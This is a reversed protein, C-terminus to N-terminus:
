DFTYRGFHQDFDEALSVITFVNMSREYELVAPTLRIFSPRLALSYAGVNEFVVYDGLHIADTFDRYLVDDEMCTCGVIDVPRAEGPSGCVPGHIVQLPLNKPSKSPIIDYVSGSVVAQRKDRLQHVGRVKVIYRFADAVLALGPELVLTPRTLNSYRFAMEDAVAVAYDNFSPIYEDFQEALEPKMRSYFGGGVDIFRPPQDPFLRRAQEILFRILERYASPSRGPPLLHCHLCELQIGVTNKLTNLALRFDPGETDFGFRSSPHGEFEYNLRLGVRLHPRRRNVAAAAVAEAEQLSEVNVLAGENLAREIENQPKAPGNFIINEPQVGVRRAIEYEVGSVVEAMGGWEDVARCLDPINNAKYSYAIRTLPYRAQFTTLLDHYNKHFRDPDYLYLRDGFQNELRLLDNWSFNM